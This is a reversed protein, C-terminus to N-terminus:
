GSRGTMSPTLHAFKSLYSAERYVRIIFANLALSEAEVRYGGLEFNLTGRLAIAHLDLCSSPAFGVAVTM